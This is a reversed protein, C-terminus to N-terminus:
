SYRKASARDAKECLIGIWHKQGPSLDGRCAKQLLSEGFEQYSTPLRPIARELNNIMGANRAGKVGAAIAGVPGPIFSAVTLVADIPDSM